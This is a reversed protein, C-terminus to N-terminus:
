SKGRNTTKRKLFVYLYTHLTYMQVSVSDNRSLSCDTGVYETQVSCTRYASQVHVSENPFLRFFPSQFLKICVQKLTHTHLQRTKEETQIRVQHELAATSFKKFCMLM